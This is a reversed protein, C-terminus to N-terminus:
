DVTEFSDGPQRSAIAAATSIIGRVGRCATELSAPDKLDGVVTEVGAAELPELRGRDATPRVLARVPKGVASLRRCVEGGVFGTAGAVLIMACRSPHPTPAPLPVGGFPPVGGRGAGQDVAAAPPIAVVSQSGRIVVSSCPYLMDCKM